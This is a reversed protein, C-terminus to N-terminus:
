ALLTTPYKALDEACVKAGRTKKAVSYRSSINALFFASRGLLPQQAVPGNLLFPLDMAYCRSPGSVGIPAWCIAESLSCRRRRSTASPHISLRLTRESKKVKKAATEM